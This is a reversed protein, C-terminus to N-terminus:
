KKSPKSVKSSGKRTSTTKVSPVPKPAEEKKAPKSAEVPEPKPAPNKLAEKRAKLLLPDAEKQLFNFIKPQNKPDCVVLLIDKPQLEVDGNPIIVEYGRQIAAISAIRTPFHTDRIKTYCLLHKSLVTSEIVSIKGSNLSLTKVLSEVSSESKISQALLYTSSVVSDIGLQKYLDVNNPNAVVCICKKVNFVTKAMLCSAFNDTDIDTLALFIDADFADAEELTFKRWPDGIYVKVRCQKMLREAVDPDGNIVILQNEKGKFMSIIFEAQTSGGAIVIKM